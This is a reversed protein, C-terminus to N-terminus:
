ATRRSSAAPVADARRPRRAAEVFDRFVELFRPDERWSEQLEWQVGLLWTGDEGELAEVIGDDAWAVATLGRGVERVAQHHYSNVWAHETGLAAALRSGPAIRIDHGPHEPMPGRGLTADCVRDWRAWDGGPHAVAGPPYESRDRHLTGGHLVNLLQMGRCIGLVPLGERLAAAALRLEFEDRHSSVATLAPHPGAGYRAPDLDRGFGLLVGDALALAAEADSLYPLMLPLAGVEELPRSLALGLYDGYDTFGASVLVVPQEQRSTAARRYML